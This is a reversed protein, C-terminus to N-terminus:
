GNGHGNGKSGDQGHNGWSNGRGNGNGNSDDDSNGGAHSTHAAETSTTSTTTTTTTHPNRHAKTTTAPACAGLTDGHHLHAPVASAAVTIAVFPHKKSHTRHCLTVKAHAPTTGTTGTTDTVAAFGGGLAISAAAFGATGLLVVGAGMSLLKRKIRM